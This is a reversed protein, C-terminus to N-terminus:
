RMIIIRRSGLERSNRLHIFYTGTPLRSLDLVRTNRGVVANFRQEAFLSADPRLGIPNLIYLLYEDAIQSDFELTLDGSAPNPRADVISFTGLTVLILRLGGARAVGTLTFTAPRATITIGNSRSLSDRTLRLVTTTDNGLAARFRLSDLPEDPNDSRVTFRVPILREGLVVRGMPLPAVPALLTPNLRLTDEIVTGTPIRVRDRLFVRVTAFDGPSAKIDTFLLHATRPVLTSASVTFELPSTPCQVGSVPLPTIVFRDNVDVGAVTGAFSVRVTLTSYPPITTTASEIRFSTTGQPTRPITLPQSSRNIITVTGSTPTNAELGTFSLSRPQIDAGVDYKIITVQTTRVTGATSLIELQFRTTDARELPDIQVQVEATAGTTLRTPASLIRINSRPPVVSVSLTTAEATGSNQLQISMSASSVCTLIQSMPTFHTIAPASRVTASWQISDQFCKELIGIRDNYTIGADGGLFTLTLRGTVGSDLRPAAPEASLRIRPIGAADRFDITSPFWSASTSGVNRVNVTVSQSLQGTNTPPFVIFRRDFLLLPRELRGQIPIRLENGGRSNSRIVLTARTTGLAQPAFRVLLSGSSGDAIEQQQGSLIQFDRSPLSDEGLIVANTITLPLTGINPLTIRRELPACSDVSQTFLPISISQSLLPGAEIGTGFLLVPPITVGPQTVTFQLPASFRGIVPPTFRVYVVVSDGPRVTFNGGGTIGQIGLFSFVPTIYAGLNRVTPLNFTLPQSGVNRVVAQLTDNFTGAVRERWDILSVGVSVTNEFGEGRILTGIEEGTSMQFFVTDQVVGRVLPTFRFEISYQGNANVTFPADGSIISFPGNPTKFRVRTVPVPFPDPNVLVRATSDKSTTIMVRGMDVPNPTLRPRVISWLNDSRDEQLPLKERLLWVVVNTDTDNSATVLRQGDPSFFATNINQKHLIKPATNLIVEPSAAGLQWIYVQAGVVIAMYEGTANFSLMTIDGPLQIDAYRNDQVFNIGGRGNPTFTLFRVKRDNCAVAIVMNGINIRDRVADVYIPAAPLATSALMVANSEDDTWGWYRIGDITSMAAIIGFVTFTNGGNVVRLEPTYRANRVYGEESRPLQPPNRVYRQDGLLRWDHINIGAVPSEVHVLFRDPNNPNADITRIAANGRTTLGDGRVNTVELESGPVIGINSLNQDGGYIMDTRRNFTAYKIRQLARNVFPPPALIISGIFTGLTDKGRWYIGRFDDGASVIRDGGRLPNFQASNVRGTHGILAVASDGAYTAGSTNKQQVRMLCTNSPTNPVVWNRSLGVANSDVLIWTKGADISYDLRVPESPPVGTWAINATTGVLFVEGGNPRILRLTPVRPRVGPFGATAYFELNCGNSTELTLTSFRYVSDPAAYELTVMRPVGPILTFNADSVTFAPDSSRIRTVMVPQVGNALQLTVQRREQTVAGMGTVNPSIIIQSELSQPPTYRDSATLGQNTLEVIRAQNRCPADSVWEIRCPTNQRIITAIERYIQVAENTSQVNSYSKGGTQNAIQALLPPVPLGVTVCYVKVGLQRARQVVEMGNASSLGDTLFIIARNSNKARPFLSLAGGPDDLFARQYDTGNLPSLLGITNRLLQKNETFDQLLYSRTEFAVLGCESGDNPLMSVFADAASKAVQMRSAGGLGIAMSGSVDIALVVSAPQTLQPPCTYSTITRRVGNEELVFGASSTIQQGQADFAYVDARMRPFRAAMGNTDIMMSLSQAFVPISESLFFSLLFVLSFSRLSFRQLLHPTTSLRM